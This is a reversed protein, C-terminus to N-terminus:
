GYKVSLAFVKCTEKSVKHTDIPERGLFIIAERFAPYTKNKGTLWLIMYKKDLDIILIWYIEILSFKFKNVMFVFIHCLSAHHYIRDYRPFDDKRNYM